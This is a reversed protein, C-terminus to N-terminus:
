SPEKAVEAAARKLAAMIDNTLPLGERLLVTNQELLVKNEAELATIRKRLMVVVWRPTLWGTVISMCALGFLTWGGTAATIGLWPIPAAPDALLILTLM